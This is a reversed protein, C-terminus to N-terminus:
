ITTRSQRPKVYASTSSLCQATSAHPEDAMSPPNSSSAYKAIDVVGVVQTVQVIRGYHRPFVYSIQVLHQPEEAGALSIGSEVSNCFIHWASGAATSRESAQRQISSHSFAM